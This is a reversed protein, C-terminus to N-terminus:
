AIVMQKVAINGPNDTATVILKSGGAPTNAQTTTYDWHLKDDRMVAAGQEVLTGDAKEIRVQVSKAPLLDDVSPSILQGALGTYKEFGLSVINPAKYFDAFAINYASQDPTAKEEYVKKLAPDKVAAKAYVSALKFQDRVKLQAPSANGKKGKIPAAAVVTKTGKQRFVILSSLMGSLGKTLVNRKSVAM